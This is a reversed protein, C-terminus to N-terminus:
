YPEPEGNIWGLTTEGQRLFQPVNPFLGSDIAVTTFPNHYIHMRHDHGPNLWKFRYVLVAAVHGYRPINNRHVTFFGNPNRTETVTGPGREPISWMRGGFLADVEDNTNMPSWTEGSVAIVYPLDLTGYKSAKERLAESLQQANTVTRAQSM